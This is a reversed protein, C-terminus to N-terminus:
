EGAVEALLPLKALAEDAVRQVDDEPLGLREAVESDPRELAVRLRLVETERPSLNARRAAEDGQLWRMGVISGAAFTWVHADVGSEVEVGSGRGRGAINVLAVVSDGAEAFAIPTVSISEWADTLTEFWRRVEERGIFPGPEPLQPHGRLEVQPDLRELIADFEGRNWAEYGLRILELNQSSV